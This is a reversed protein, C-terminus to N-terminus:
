SYITYGLGIPTLVATREVAMKDKPWTFNIKVRCFELKASIKKKKELLHIICVAESPSVKFSIDFLTEM